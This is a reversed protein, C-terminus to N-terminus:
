FLIACWKQIFTAILYSWSLLILFLVVMIWYKNQLNHPNKESCLYILKTVDKEFNLEIKLESL